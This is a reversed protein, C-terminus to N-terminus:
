TTDTNAKANCNDFAIINANANTNANSNADAETVANMHAFSSSLHGDKVTRPLDVPFWPQFFKTNHKFGLLRFRTTKQSYCLYKDHLLNVSPANQDARLQRRVECLLM